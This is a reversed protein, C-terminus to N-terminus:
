VPPFVQPYTSVDRFPGKIPDVREYARSPRTAAQQENPGFYNVPLPGIKGFERGHSSPPKFAETPAHHKTRSVKHQIQKVDFKDDLTLIDEFQEKKLNAVRNAEEQQLKARLETKQRTLLDHLSALDLDIDGESVNTTSAQKETDRTLHLAASTTSATVAPKGLGPKDQKVVAAGSLNM